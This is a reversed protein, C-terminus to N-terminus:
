FIHVHSPLLEKKSWTQVLQMRDMLLKMTTAPIREVVYGEVESFIYQNMLCMSM